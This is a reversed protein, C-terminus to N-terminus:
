NHLHRSLLNSIGLYKYLIKVKAKKFRLDVPNAAFKKRLNFPDQKHIAGGARPDYAVNGYKNRTILSLTTKLGRSFYPM